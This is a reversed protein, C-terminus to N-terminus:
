GKLRHERIYRLSEEALRQAEHESPADTAALLELRRYFEVVPEIWITVESQRAARTDLQQLQRIMFAADRRIAAIQEPVPTEKKLQRRRRVDRGALIIVAMATLAFAAGAGAIFGGM